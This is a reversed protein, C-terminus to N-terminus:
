RSTTLNTHFPIGGPQLHMNLDMYKGIRSHQALSLSYLLLSIPKPCFISILFRVCACPLVPCPSSWCIHFFLYRDFRCKWNHITLLDAYSCCLSPMLFILGRAQNCSLELCEPTMSHLIARGQAKDWPPESLQSQGVVLLNQVSCSPSWVHYVRSPPILSQQNWNM